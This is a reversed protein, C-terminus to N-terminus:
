LKGLLGIREFQDIVRGLSIIMKKIEMLDEKMESVEAKLIMIDTKVETNQALAENIPNITASINMIEKKLEQIHYNVGSQEAVETEKLHSEKELVLHFFDEKFNDFFSKAFTERVQSVGLEIGAIEAKVTNVDSKVENHNISIAKHLRSIESAIRKFEEENPDSARPQLLAIAKEVPQRGQNSTYYHLPTKGHYDQILISEPYANVLFRLIYFSYHNNKCAYHLPLMGTYSNQKEAYKHRKLEVLPTEEDKNEKEVGEPFLEILFNLVELSVENHCAVHLPLNGYIDRVAISDPYARVLTQFIELSAQNICSGHLPLRGDESKSRTGEPYANVLFAVVELTAGNTCAVYLPLRGRNNKVTLSEPYGKVLAMVVELSAHNQCAYHIPLLGSEDSIKLIEPAHKIMMMIIDLPPRQYLIQHLPTRYNRQYTVADKFRKKDDKRDDLWRRISRFAKEKQEEEFLCLDFLDEKFFINAM